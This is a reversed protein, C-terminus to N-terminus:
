DDEYHVAHTRNLMLYYHGNGCDKFEESYWAGNKEPNYEVSVDYGNYYKGSIYKEKNDIANAIRGLVYETDHKQFSYKHFSMKKIKCDMVMEFNNCISFVKTYNPENIYSAVSNDNEPYIRCRLMSTIYSEDIPTFLKQFTMLVDYLKRKNLENIIKVVISRAEEYEESFTQKSDTRYSRAVLKKCEDYGLIKYIHLEAQIGTWLNDVALHKLLKNINEEFKEENTKYSWELSTIFSIAYGYNRRGKGYRAVHGDKTTFLRMKEPKAQGRLTVKYENNLYDLEKNERVFQWAGKDNDGALCTWTKVAM